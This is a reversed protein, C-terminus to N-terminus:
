NGPMTALWARYLPYIADLELCLMLLFCVSCPLLFAGLAVIQRRHSRSPTSAATLVSDEFDESGPSVPGQQPTPFDDEAMLHDTSAKGIDETECLSASLNKIFNESMARDSRTTSESQTRTLLKQLRLLSTKIHAFVELQSHNITSLARSLVHM